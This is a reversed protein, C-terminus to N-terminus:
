WEKENRPTGHECQKWGCFAQEVAGGSDRRGFRIGYPVCVDAFDRWNANRYGHRIFERAHGPTEDNVVLLVHLDNGSGRRAILKQYDELELRWIKNKEIFGYQIISVVSFQQFERSMLGGAAEDKNGPM